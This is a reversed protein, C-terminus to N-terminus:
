QYKRPSRIHQEILHAHHKKKSNPVREEVVPVPTQAIVTYRRMSAGLQLGAVTLATTVEKVMEFFRPSVRIPPLEHM